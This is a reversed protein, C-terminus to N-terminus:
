DIYPKARAATSLRSIKIKKTKRNTKQRKKNAKYESSSHRCRPPKTALPFGAMHRNPLKGAEPHMGEVVDLVHQALRDFPRQPSPASAREGRPLGRLHSFHGDNSCKALM